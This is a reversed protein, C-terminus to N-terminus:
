KILDKFFSIIGNLRNSVKDKWGDPKELKEETHSNDVTFDMKSIDELLKEINYVPENLTFHKPVEALVEYGVCRLKRFNHDTPVTVVDAPDVKVLMLRPGWGSAYTIDGVHLGYSCQQDRNHDVEKFSVRPKQGVSNDITHSHKDFYDNAVGKFGLFYGNETIPLQKNRLFDMLEVISHDNPNEMLRYLFNLVPEIDYGMTVVELVRNKLLSPLPIGEFTAFSDNFKIEDGCLSTLKQCTIIKNELEDSRGSRIDRIIEDYNISDPTIYFPKTNLFGAINGSNTLVYKFM